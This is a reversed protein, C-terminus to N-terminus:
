FSRWHTYRREQFFYFLFIDQWTCDIPSQNLASPPVFFFLFTVFFFVALKKDIDSGIKKQENFGSKVGEAKCLNLFFCVFCLKSRNTRWVFVDACAGVFCLLFFLFRERAFDWALLHFIAKDACLGSCVGEIKLKFEATLYRQPSAAQHMLWCDRKATNSRQRCKVFLPVCRYHCWPFFFFSQSQSKLSM